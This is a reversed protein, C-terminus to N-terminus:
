EQEQLIDPPQTSISVVPRRTRGTSFVNQHFNLNRKRWMKTEGHSFALMAPGHVVVELGTATQQHKSEEKM